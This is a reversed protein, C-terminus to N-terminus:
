FAARGEARRSGREAFRHYRLVELCSVLCSELSIVPQLLPVNKRTINM